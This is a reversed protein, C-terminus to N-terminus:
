GGRRGSRRGRKPLKMTIKRRPVVQGGKRTAQTERINHRYVHM